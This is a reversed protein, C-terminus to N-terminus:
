MLKKIEDLTSNLILPVEEKELQSYNIDIQFHSSFKAPQLYLKINQIKRCSVSVSTLEAPSCSVLSLNRGVSYESLGAFAPSKKNSYEQPRIGSFFEDRQRM